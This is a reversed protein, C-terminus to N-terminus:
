FSVLSTVLEDLTLGRSKADKEVTRYFQDINMAKNIARLVCWRGCTSAGDGQFLHDNYALKGKSNLLLYTLHERLQNSEARYKRPIYDLEDSPIMGYSDFFEVEKKNRRHLLTWHGYGKRSEFLIFVRGFPKLLDDLTAFDVLDRYRLIKVKGKLLEEIDESSLAYKLSNKNM